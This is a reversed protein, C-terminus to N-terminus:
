PALKLMVVGDGLDAESLAVALRSGERRSAIPRFSSGDTAIAVQTFAGAPVEITCAANARVTWQDAATRVAHAFAEVSVRDGPGFVYGRLKIRGDGDADVFDSEQFGGELYWRFSSGPYLSVWTRTGDENVLRRYAYQWGGRQYDPNEPLKFYFSQGDESIRTVELTLLTEGAREKDADRGVLRLTRRGDQDADPLDTWAITNPFSGRFGPFGIHMWRDSEEFRVKWTKDLSENAATTGDLFRTDCGFVPPEIEPEVWGEQPNRALLTSQYFLATKEHTVVTTQDARPDLSELIFAEHHLPNEILAAAGRLLRAPWAAPVTFQRAAYAVTQVPAEYRARALSLAFTETRLAAGGVLHALLPGEADHRLQAFRGDTTLTEGIKVPDGPGAVLLDTLGGPLQVEVAVAADAGTRGGSVPLPRRGQVFPTKSFPEVLAPFLSERNSVAAASRVYLMPFNYAYATSFANGTYVRDGARSFLHLRTTVPADPEHHAGQYSKQLQPELTWDAQLIEPAVGERRTGDFHKRLYAAADESAAPALPTNVSFAENSARGGHFCYTHVAGGRVRFVDFLYSNRDDVDILATQRSYLSVEPHSTARARHEMFQSGPQPSFATNWGTGSVTSGAYSNEFNRDDVEVLNHVKNWRMNPSGHNAGEHRGGLDPMLRCSHAFLELNLCDQHAHGRGIGAYLGVARRRLPDDAPGSELITTAFGGLLRSPLFLGDRTRGVRLDRADGVILPFGGAVHRVADLTRPAETMHPYQAPNLIDFRPSGGADVYRRLLEGIETLDNGLYGVSGIYHVGDRNYSCVAQDDVGGRFTMNMCMQKFLGTDLMRDSEPSVGQVLPILAKLSDSGSIWDRDAQDMSAQLLHVDLLWRVDEPTKVWPIRRGVADALAQNGAIFDFIKDYSLVLKETTGGSWGRYVFKGPSQSFFFLNTAPVSPGQGRQSVSQVLFDLAPWTYAASCLLIAADWGFEPHGTKEFATAASLIGGARDHGLVAQFRPHGVSSLSNFDPVLDWLQANRAARDEPTRGEPWWPTVTTDLAVGGDPLDLRVPRRTGAAAAVSEAFDQRLAALEADTTLMRRSKVAKRDMDAFLDRLELRDVWLTRFPTERLKALFASILRDEVDPKFYAATDVRYTSADAPMSLRVTYAGGAPTPFYLRGSAHYHISYAIPLTWTSTAGTAQETVSMTILSSGIAQDPNRALVFVVYMGRPRLQDFTATLAPGGPQLIFARSGRGGNGEPDDALQDAPIGTGAEAEVERVLHFPRNAVNHTDWWACVLRPLLGLVIPLFLLRRKM